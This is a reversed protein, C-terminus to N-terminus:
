PHAWNYFDNQVTGCKLCTVTLDSEDGFKPKVWPTRSVLGHRTVHCRKSKCRYVAMQEIKYGAAYKPIPM